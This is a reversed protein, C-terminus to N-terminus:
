EFTLVGPLPLGARIGPRTQEEFYRNDPNEFQAAWKM